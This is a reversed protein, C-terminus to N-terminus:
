GHIELADDRNQPYERHILRLLEIEAKEAEGDVPSVSEIRPRREVHLNGAAGEEQM